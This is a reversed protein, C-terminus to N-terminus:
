LDTCLTYFKENNLKSPVPFLTSQLHHLVYPPKAWSPSRRGQLCSTLPEIGSIEVLIIPEYSLRNSRGGSLRSTPPELGSTGVLSVQVSTPNWYGASIISISIQNKSVFTLASCRSFQVIHNSLLHIKRALLLSTFVNLKHVFLRFVSHTFCVVITVSKLAQM